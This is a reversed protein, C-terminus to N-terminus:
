VHARGIEARPSRLQGVPDQGLSLCSWAGGVAAMVLAFAIKRKM